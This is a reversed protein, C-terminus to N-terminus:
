SKGPDCDPLSRMRERKPSHRHIPQNRSGGTREGRIAYAVAEPLLLGAISASALLDRVRALDLGSQTV